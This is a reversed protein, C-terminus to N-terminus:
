IPPSSNYNTYGSDLCQKAMEKAKNIQWHSMLPRLNDCSEHGLGFKNSGALWTWMYAQVLDVPAGEGNAYMSGLDYQAEALGQRAARQRWEMAATFDQTVGRGIACCLGLNYQSKPDGQEAAKRYWKAAEADSNPVGSGHFYMNGLSFQALAYGQEAALRYWKAAESYDIPLSEINSYHYGLSFQAMLDGREAALRWWRVAEAYDRRVGCGEAYMFGLKKMASIDGQQALPVILDLDPKIKPSRAALTANAFDPAADDAPSVVKSFSAFRNKLKQLILKITKEKAIDAM